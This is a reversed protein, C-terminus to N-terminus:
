NAENGETDARLFAVGIGNDNRLRHPEIGGFMLRYDTYRENEFADRYTIRGHIYLTLQPTGIIRMAERSFARYQRIMAHPEEGPGLISTSM